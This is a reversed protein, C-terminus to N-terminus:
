TSSNKKVSVKISALLSVAQSESGKKKYATKRTISNSRYKLKGQLQRKMKHFFFTPQGVYNFYGWFMIRIYMHIVLNSIHAVKPPELCYKQILVKCLM